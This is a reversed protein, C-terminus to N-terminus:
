PVYRTEDEEEAVRREARRAERQARKAERVGEREARRQRTPSVTEPPADPTPVSRPGPPRAFRGIRVADYVAWALGVAGPVLLPYSGFLVLALQALGRGALGSHPNKVGAVVAGVGPLPFVELVVAARKWGPSLLWPRVPERM